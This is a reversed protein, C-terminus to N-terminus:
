CARNRFHDPPVLAGRVCTVMGAFRVTMIQLYYFIFM